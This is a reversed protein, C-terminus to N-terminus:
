GLLPTRSIGTCQFAGSMRDAVCGGRDREQDSNAILDSVLRAVRAHGSIKAAAGELAHGVVGAAAYVQDVAELELPLVRLYDALDEVNGGRM